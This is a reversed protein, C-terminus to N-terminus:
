SSLDPEQSSDIPVCVLAKVPLAGILRTPIVNRCSKNNFNEWLGLRVPRCYYIKGEEWGIKSLNIKSVTNIM